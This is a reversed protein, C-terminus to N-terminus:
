KRLLRLFVFLGFLSCLLMLIPLENCDHELVFTETRGPDKSLKEISKVITKYSDVESELYYEGGTLLVAEEMEQKCVEIPRQLTDPDPVYTTGIGFVKIKNELCLEAAETITFYQSGGREYVDNDSTFIVIRTKDEELDPFHLVTSALGDGAFSSGRENTVLTGGFLYNYWYDYDDSKIDEYWAKHMVGCGTAIDDLVQNVFDYDDTLPCFLVPSTNYGIIAFRDGNLKAIMTKLEQCLQENVKCVSGSVDMCLIIDRSYHTEEIIEKKYPRSLVLGMSLLTAVMFLSAVIKLLVYYVKKRKYYSEGKAFTLAYIKEGKRYKKARPIAFFLIVFLTALIACGYFYRFDRYIVENKPDFINVFEM